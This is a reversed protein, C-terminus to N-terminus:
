RRVLRKFLTLMFEQFGLKKYLKFAVQNSAAVSVTVLDIGKAKLRELAAGMLRTAVGKRRWEPKVYLDYIVARRYPSKLASEREAFLVFGVLEGGAEAVLIGGGESRIVSLAWSRWRTANEDTPPFLVLDGPSGEVALAKWLETLEDLDEPVADRVEVRLAFGERARRWPSGKFARGPPPM